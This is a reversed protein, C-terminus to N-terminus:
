ESRVAAAPAGKFASRDSMWAPVNSRDFNESRRMDAARQREFRLTYRRSLMQRDAAPSLAGDAYRHFTATFYLGNGRRAEWGDRFTTVALDCGRRGAPAAVISSTNWDEVDELTAKLNWGADFVHVSWQNVGLGNGQSNWVSVVRERSGDGDLDVAAISFADYRGAMVDAPLTILPQGPRSVLLMHSPPYVDEGAANKVPEAEPADEPTNVLCRWVGTGDRLIRRVGHTCGVNNPPTPTLGGMPLSENWTFPSPAAVQVGPCPAVAAAVFTPAMVGALSLKWVFAPLRNM